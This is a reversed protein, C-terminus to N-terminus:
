IHNFCVSTAFKSDVLLLDTVVPMKWGAVM